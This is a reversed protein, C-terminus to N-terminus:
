LEMLFLDEEAEDVDDLEGEKDSKESRSVDFFQTQCNSVNYYRLLQRKRLLNSDKLVLNLLFM